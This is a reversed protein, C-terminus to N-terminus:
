RSSPALNHHLNVKPIGARLAYFNRPHFLVDAGFACVLGPLVAKEFAVCVFIGGRLPAIKHWRACDDPDIRRRATPDGLLVLEDRGRLPM